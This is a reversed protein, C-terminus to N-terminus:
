NWSLRFASDLSWVGLSDIDGVVYVAQGFNVKKMINFHIKVRDFLLQSNQDISTLM